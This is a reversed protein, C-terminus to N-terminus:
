VFVRAEIRDIEDRPALAVGDRRIRWATFCGVLSDLADGGRNQVAMARISPSLRCGEEILREAISGRALAHENKAGKYSGYCDLRKLTSAPCIEALVPVGTNDATRRGCDVPAIDVQRDVALPALIGVIGWYTQRYIRLNYAAFPTRAEVDCRRRWERGNSRRRCWDRFAEPEDFRTGLRSAFSRWDDGDMLAAPVSFPFDLGILSNRAGALYRRLAPLMTDRDPGSGPLSAAPFLREITLGSDDPVAEAIWTRRGGDKSAASFDIGIYRDPSTM